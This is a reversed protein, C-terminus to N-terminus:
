PCRQGRLAVDVMLSDRAGFAQGLHVGPTSLSLVGAQTGHRDMHHLAMEPSWEPTRIIGGIAEIATRFAPSMSHAHVDIRGSM